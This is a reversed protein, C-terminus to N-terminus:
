PDSAWLNSVALLAHLAPPRRGPRSTGVGVAPCSTAPGAKHGIWVRQGRGQGLASWSRTDWNSRFSISMSLSCRPMGSASYSAVTFSGAASNWRITLSRDVMPSVPADGTGGRQAVGPQLHVRQSAHRARGKLPDAKGLAGDRGRHSSGQQAQQSGCHLDAHGLICDLKAGGAVNAARLDQALSHRPHRFASPM